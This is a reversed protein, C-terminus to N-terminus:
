LGHEADDPGIMSYGSEAHLSAKSPVYKAPESCRLLDSYHFRFGDSARFFRFVVKKYQNQVTKAGILLMMSNGFEDRWSAKECVHNGAGSCRLLDSYHSRLGRSPGFSQIRRKFRLYWIKTLARPSILSPSKETHTNERFTQNKKFLM